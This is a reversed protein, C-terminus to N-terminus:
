RSGRGRRWPDWPFRPARGLGLAGCCDPVLAVSHSRGLALRDRRDVPVPQAGGGCVRANGPIPGGGACEISQAQRDLDRGRGDVVPGVHRLGSRQAAALHISVDDGFLRAAPPLALLDAVTVALDLVRVAAFAFVSSRERVAFGALTLAILMLPTAYSAPEGIRAFFFEPEPGILPNEALALRHGRADLGGRRAREPADRGVRDIARSAGGMKQILQVLRHRSLGIFEFVVTAALVMAAVVLWLLPQSPEAIGRLLQADVFLFLVALPLLAVQLAAAVRRALPARAKILVSAGVWGFRGALSGNAAGSCSLCSWCCRRALWRWASAVAVDAEWRGAWLPAALSGVLVLAILDRRRFQEWQGAVFMVLTLGLLAWPGWGM